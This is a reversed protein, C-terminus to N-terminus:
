AKRQLSLKRAWIWRNHTTPRQEPIVLRWWANRIVKTQFGSGELFAICDDELGKSHTEVLLALDAACNLLSAGSKLVDLESGDVDIKIFGAHRPDVKIDDVRVCGPMTGIFKTIIEVESPRLGNASLNERLLEGESSQPEAAIVINTGAKRFLLCLEGGGAGVDIFWRVHRLLGRLDKHTELEWLGLYTQMQSRLDINLRLGRYLGFPVYRIQRGAPVVYRKIFSLVRPAANLNLPVRKPIVV